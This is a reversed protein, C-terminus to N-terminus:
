TIIKKMKRNDSRCAKLKKREAIIQKNLHRIRFFVSIKVFFYLVDHPVDVIKTLDTVMTRMCDRGEQLTSGHVATFTRRMMSLQTSFEDSPVYLKGKDLTGTWTSEFRNDESVKQGLHPYEFQFKKVIYGGVYLLAEEEIVSEATNEKNMELDDEQWESIDPNIDEIEMDQFISSTVCLEVNLDRDTYSNEGNSKRRLNPTSSSCDLEELNETNTRKSILHVGRGLLLKRIRYKFNVANPHEYTGSMQRICGFFHELTDQNLRRTLVYEVQFVEQIMNYLGKLSQSSLIVGKQFSFFGGKSSNNVRMNTMIDIMKNLVATQAELKVGFACKSNKHTFKSHSNMTDFWEDVAKVFDATERWNKTKLLGRQGLYTLANSCSESLLHAAYKVRQRQQGIVNLHGESVKHALAYETKTASLMERISADSIYSGDGLCFGYDIFNNRILKLLHPVDAFLYIQRDADCPNQISCKKTGIPDIGWAKWLKMNVPGLDHVLAVVPYGVMEVKKIIDLLIKDMNKSDFDYYIPQKWKGILGQLMVVTVKQHPKYLVDKGKDYCWEEKISMEDLSIVALQEMKTLSESNVKLVTLVSDLIGPECPFQNAKLNLTSKCPLPFGKKTRLVEYFKSSLSKMYFASAIDEESWKRVPKGTLLADLQTNSFMPSFIKKIKANVKSDDCEQKQLQQKLIMNEKKLKRITEKYDETAQRQQHCSAKMHTPSPQHLLCSSSCIGVENNILDGM